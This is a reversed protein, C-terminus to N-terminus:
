CTSTYKGKSTQIDTGHLIAISYSNGEIRIVEELRYVVEIYEPGGQERWKRWSQAIM